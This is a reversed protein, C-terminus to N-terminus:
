SANYNAGAHKHACARPDQLIALHSVLSRYARASNHKVIDRWVGGHDTYWGPRAM